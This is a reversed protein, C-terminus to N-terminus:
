LPNFSNPQIPNSQNLIFEERVEKRVRPKPSPKEKREKEKRRNVCPVYCKNAFIMHSIEKKYM